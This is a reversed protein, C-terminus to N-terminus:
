PVPSAGAASNQSTRWVMALNSSFRGLNLGTHFLRPRIASDPWERELTRTDLFELNEPRAWCDLRTGRLLGRFVGPAFHLLPIGSHHEVPFWRNPVAIFGRKSVRIAERLFHARQAPGDVHELVANSYAIDFQGDAFPLPRGPEIHQFRVGPYSRLVAEGTGTGACTIKDTHPHLKELMNAEDTEEDSAGIDLITTSADAQCEARFLDYIRRRAVITIRRAFPVRLGDRYYIADNNM